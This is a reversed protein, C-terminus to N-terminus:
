FSLDDDSFDLAGLVNSYDDTWAAGTVNPPSAMWKTEHLLEGLDEPRRAMVVWASLNKGLREEDPTMMKWFMPQVTFLLTASLLLTLVFLLLDPRISSRRSM